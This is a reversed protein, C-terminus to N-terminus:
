IPDKKDKDLEFFGEDSYYYRGKIKVRICGEFPKLFYKKGKIIVFKNKM